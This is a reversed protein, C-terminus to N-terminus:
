ARTKAKKADSTMSVGNKKIITKDQNAGMAAGKSILRSASLLNRVSQTAYMVKTLKVTQGDQLNMNVSVKLECKMKQGNGVTVNIDCKEVDKM